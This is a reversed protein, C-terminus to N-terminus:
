RYFRKKLYQRIEYIRIAKIVWLVCLSESFYELAGFPTLAVLDFFFGGKFYRMAVKELPLNLTHGEENM